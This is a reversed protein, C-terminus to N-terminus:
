YMRLRHYDVPVSTFLRIYINSVVTAILAVTANSIPNFYDDFVVGEDNRNAFWTANIIAQFAPNLFYGKRAHPDQRHMM